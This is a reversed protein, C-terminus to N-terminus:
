KKVMYTEILNLISVNKDTKPGLFKINYFGTQTNNVESVCGLSEHSRLIFCLILGYSGFTRLIIAKLIVGNKNM